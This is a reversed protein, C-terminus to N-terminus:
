TYSEARTPALPRQQLKELTATKLAENNNNNNNHTNSVKM